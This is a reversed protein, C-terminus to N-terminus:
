AARASSTAPSIRAAAPAEDAGAATILLGTIEGREQPQSGPPPASAPQAIGAPALALDTASDPVSRGGQREDAYERASASPKGPLLRVDDHFTQRAGYRQYASCAFAYEPEQTLRDGGPDNLEERLDDQGPDKRGGVEALDAKGQGDRCYDARAEIKPQLVHQKLAM